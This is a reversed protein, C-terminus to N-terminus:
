YIEVQRESGGMASDMDVENYGNSVLWKNLYELATNNAKEQEDETLLHFGSRFKSPIKKEYCLAAQGLYAIRNMSKNTLYHECSFKWEKIIKALTKRFLDDDRLFEAYVQECEEKSMGEKKTDYFGNKFCEWKDFTHFIREEDNTNTTRFNNEEKEEITVDDTFESFDDEYSDEINWSKSFDDDKFLDELGTIQCLRLIEDEDMGLEKSIRSNKWNRNKLEIVIDSMATITHKGRARNHRITSAIRDKKDIRNKNIIVVPLEDMEMRFKGVIHRHFGDVVEYMGDEREWVVIPQTFGDNKISLELLDMEPPAVKNPNYNNAVLLDSKVWKVSSVPHIEKNVKKSM